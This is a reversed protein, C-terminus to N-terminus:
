KKKAKKGSKKRDEKKGLEIKIKGNQIAENIQKELINNNFLATKALSDYNHLKTILENCIPNFDFNKMKIESPSLIDIHAPMYGFLVSMFKQVGEIESEVEAFTTFLDSNEVEKAEHMKRSIIRVNKEEGLKGIISGLTEAIYEKPKGLIEFIMVSKIPEM